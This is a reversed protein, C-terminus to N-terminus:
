PSEVECRWSWETRVTTDVPGEYSRLELVPLGQWDYMKEMETLQDGERESSAELQGDDRYTWSREYESGWFSGRDAILREGDYWEEMEVDIVGDRGVDTRFGGDLSPAPGSYWRESTSPYLGEHEIRVLRGDEDYLYDTIQTERTQRSLKDGEYEYLIVLLEDGFMEQWIEQRLPQGDTRREWRSWADVVGDISVSEEILGTEDYLYAESVLGVDDVMYSESLTRHQSDLTLAAQEEIIGDDGQDLSRTGHCLEQGEERQACALLFRWVNCRGSV